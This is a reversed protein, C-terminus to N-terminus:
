EGREVMLAQELKDAWQRLEGAMIKNRVGEAMSVLTDAELDNAEVRMENIVKLVHENSM